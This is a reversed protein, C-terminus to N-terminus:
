GAEDMGDVVSLEICRYRLLPLGYVQAVRQTAQVIVDDAPGAPALCYVGPEPDFGILESLAAVLEGETGAGIPQELGLRHVVLDPHRLAAAALRVEDVLERDRTWDDPDAEDVAAPVDEAALLVDARGFSELLRVLDSGPRLLEMADAAVAVVRRDADRMALPM